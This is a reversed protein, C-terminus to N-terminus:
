KFDERLQEMIKASTMINIILHHHHHHHCHKLQSASESTVFQKMEQEDGDLRTGVIWTPLFGRLYQHHRHHHYYAVIFLFNPLGLNQTSKQSNLKPFGQYLFFPLFPSMTGKPRAGRGLRIFLPCKDDSFILNIYSDM